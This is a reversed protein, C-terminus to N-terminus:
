VTQKRSMPRLFAGKDGLLGKLDSLLNVDVAVSYKKSKIYVESGNQRAALLVPVKGQSKELTSLVQDITTDPTNEEVKIVLQCDFREALEEVAMLESAIIKPAEGERTSVRGTVIVLKDVEVHQRYKEYCSSFMLLEMGGTFDESSAFAMTKNKKDFMTKVKTIIGGM